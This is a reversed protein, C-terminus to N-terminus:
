EAVYRWPDGIRDRRWITFFPSAAREGEAVPANRRITGITVGLDGSSAVIAREASWSIPTPVTQDAPFGASIADLGVRFEAGEFINMADERGWRRFANRMGIRQAEDSFAQEAAALDQRLAALAVPDDIPATMAPPLSPPMLELSVPGAARGIQKYVLVRWGEPRRVWYSLYKREARAPDAGSITMYGYTFGHQGDASIGGRVPTWEAHSGRMAPNSRLARLAADRGVMLGQAAAPMVVEPDMMAALGSVPDTAKAAEAFARDAALLGDVAAQPRDAASVNQPLPAVFLLLAHLFKMM